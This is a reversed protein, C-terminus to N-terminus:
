RQDGDLCRKQDQALITRESESGSNKRGNRFSGKRIEDVPDLGDFFIRAAFCDQQASKRSRPFMQHNLFVKYFENLSFRAYKLLTASQIKQKIIICIVLEANGKVSGQQFSLIKQFLIKKVDLTCQVFQLRIKELISM